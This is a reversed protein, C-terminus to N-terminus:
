RPHIDKEIILTKHGERALYTGLAAGAPGGGIIIVDADNTRETVQRSGKARSPAPVHVNERAPVM